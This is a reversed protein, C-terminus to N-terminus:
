ILGYEAAKHASVSRYEAINYATVAIIKGDERIRAPRMEVHCLEAISRAEEVDRFFPDHYALTEITAFGKPMLTTHGLENLARTNNERAQHTVHATMSQIQEIEAIIALENETITRRMMQQFVLMARNVPQRCIAVAEPTDIHLAMQRLGRETVVAVSKRNFLQPYQEKVDALEDGRLIWGLSEMDDMQLENMKNLRARVADPRQGLLQAAYESTIVASERSLFSSENM